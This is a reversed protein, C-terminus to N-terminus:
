MCNQDLHNIKSLPVEFYRAEIEFYYYYYYYYYYYFSM